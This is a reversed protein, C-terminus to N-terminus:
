ISGPEIMRMSAPCLFRNCGSCYLVRVCLRDYVIHRTNEGASNWTSFTSPRPGRCSCHVGWQARLRHEACGKNPVQLTQRIRGKAVEVKAEERGGGRVKETGMRRAVMMQSSPSLAKRLVADEGM